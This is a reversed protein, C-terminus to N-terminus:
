VTKQVIGNSWCPLASSSMQMLGRQVKEVTANIERYEPM